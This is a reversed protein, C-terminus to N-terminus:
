IKNFIKGSLMLKAILEREESYMDVEVKSFSRGLDVIKAYIDIVSEIQVPKIFYTM